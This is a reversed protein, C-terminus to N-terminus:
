DEQGSASIQAPADLQLTLPQGAQVTVNSGKRLMLSDAVGLAGGITLGALAGRGTGYGRSAIAGVVTGLIAGGGVGLAGRLAADEIKHTTSEGHFADNRGNGVAEYKGLSGMIHASIPVSAGAPTQLTTFHFALQGSHSMGTGPESDTVQGALISNAPIQTDGLIIPQVITGQVPDGSRCFESSLATNLVIPITMGAPIYVLGGKKYYPYSGSENTSIGTQPQEGSGVLQAVYKEVSVENTLAGKLGTSWKQALANTTLGLKQASAADVSSIYFGGLTLVPQKNVYTIAVASPSHNTSAVLANDVNKQITKTRQAVTIKGAGLNVNFADMGAVKVPDAMAASSTLLIAILGAVTIAGLKPQKKLLM